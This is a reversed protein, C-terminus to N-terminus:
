GVDASVRVKDAGARGLLNRDPGAECERHEDAVLDYSHKLEEGSLYGLPIRRQEVHHRVDARLEPADDLTRPGRHLQLCLYLPTGGMQVRQQLEAVLQERCTTEIGCELAGHAVRQCQEGLRLAARDVEII